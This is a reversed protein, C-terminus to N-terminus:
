WLSSAFVFAVKTSDPPTRQTNGPSMAVIPGSIKYTGTPFIIKRNRGKDSALAARIRETHDEGNPRIEKDLDTILLGQALCSGCVLFWLLCAKAMSKM